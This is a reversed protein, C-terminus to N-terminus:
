PTSVVLTNNCLVNWLRKLKDVVIWYSIILPECRKDGNDVELFYDNYLRDDAEMTDFVVRFQM